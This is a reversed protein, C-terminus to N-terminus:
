ANMQDAGSVPASKKIFVAADTQATLMLHQKGQDSMSRYLDLLRREDQQLFTEGYDRCLLYDVSAGFYDALKIITEMNPDSKKWKYFSGRSLHLDREMQAATIKCNTLM